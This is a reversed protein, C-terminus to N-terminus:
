RKAKDPENQLEWVKSIYSLDGTNRNMLAFGEKAAVIIQEQSSDDVHEINATVRFVGTSRNAVNTPNLLLLHM